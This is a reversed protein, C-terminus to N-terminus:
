GRGSLIAIGMLAGYHVTCFGTVTGFALTTVVSQKEVGSPLIFLLKAEQINGLVYYTPKKKLYIFSHNIFKLIFDSIDYKFIFYIFM